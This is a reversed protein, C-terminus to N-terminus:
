VSHSNVLEGCRGVNIAQLGDLDRSRVRILQVGLGWMLKCFHYDLRPWDPVTDHNVAYIFAAVPLSHHDGLAVLMFTLMELTLVAM